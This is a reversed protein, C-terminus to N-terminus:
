DIIRNRSWKLPMKRLLTKINAEGKAGHVGAPESVLKRFLSSSCANRVQSLVFGDVQGDDCCQRFFTRILDDREKGIETLNNVAKLLKGYTVANPGEGDIKCLKNFTRLVVALADSRGVYPGNYYACCNILSSYTTTDAQIDSRGELREVILEADKISNMDGSRALAKIVINYCVVTQRFGREEDTLSEMHKLIQQAREAGGNEAHNAWANLVGCFTIDDPKCYDDNHARYQSEMWQLIQEAKRAAGPESSRSYANILTNFVIRSPRIHGEGQAFLKMMRDVTEQARQAANPINQRVFGDIMTVYSISNPRDEKDGTIEYQVEMKKLIAEARDVQGAKCWAGMVTTYCVVNPKVMSDGNRYLTEMKDLVRQANEAADPLGSEAWALIVGGWTKVNPQVNNEGQEMRKFMEVLLQEARQATKRGRRLRSRAMATIVTNFTATAPKIETMTQSEHLNYLHRLVNQALEPASADLSNGIANIATAYTILSPKAYYCEQAYLEEMKKIIAIARSSSREREKKSRCKSYANLVSTYAVTDPQVGRKEMRKLVAEARTALNHEQSHALGTIYTTYTIVNPLIVEKNDDYCSSKADDETQESSTEAELAYSEMETLLKEARNIAGRVKGSLKCWAALVSTYVKVNPRIGREKMRELIQEAREASEGSFNDNHSDAWAQCVLMYTVANPQVTVDDKEDYLAEMRDLLAQARVAADESDSHLWADIVTTYCAANPQIYLGDHSNQQQYLEEMIELADQAKEPDELALNQLDMNFSKATLDEEFFNYGNAEEKTGDPRRQPTQEFSVEKMWRQCIRRQLPQQRKNHGLTRPTRVTLAFAAVDESQCLIFVM